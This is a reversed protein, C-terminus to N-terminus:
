IHCHCYMSLTFHMFVTEIESLVLINLFLILKTLAHNNKHNENFMVQWTDLLKINNIIHSLHKAYMYMYMFLIFM